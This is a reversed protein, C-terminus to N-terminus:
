VRDAPRWRLSRKVADAVETPTFPKAVLESIGLADLRGTSVDGAHGTIIVVPVAPKVERLRQLFRLGDIGPMRLDLLIVRYDGLEALRLGTSSDTCTDVAVGERMLIRRCSECVIVEDDVVLARLEDDDTLERNLETTRMLTGDHEQQSRRAMGWPFCLGHWGTINKVLRRLHSSFKAKYFAPPRPTFGDDLWCSYLKRICHVPGRIPM